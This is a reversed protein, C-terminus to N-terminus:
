SRTHIIPKVVNMSTEGIKASRTMTLLFSGCLGIYCVIIQKNSIWLICCHYLEPININFYPFVAKSTQIVLLPVLFSTNEIIDM